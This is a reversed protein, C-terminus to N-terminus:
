DRMLVVAIELLDKDTVERRIMDYRVDEGEKIRQKLIFVNRGEIMAKQIKSLDGDSAFIPKKMYTALTTVPGSYNGDRYTAGFLTSADLTGTVKGQSDLVLLERVENSESARTSYQWVADAISM